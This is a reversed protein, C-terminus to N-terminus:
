GNDNGRLFIIANRADELISDINYEDRFEPDPSLEEVTVILNKIATIVDENSM